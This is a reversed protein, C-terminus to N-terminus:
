RGSGGAVESRQRTAIRRAAIFCGVAFLIALYTVHGALLM